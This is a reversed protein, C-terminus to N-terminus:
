FLEGFHHPACMTDEHSICAARAHHNLEPLLARKGKRRQAKKADHRVARVRRIIDEGGRPLAAILNHVEACPLWHQAGMSFM